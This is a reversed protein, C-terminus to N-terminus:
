AFVDRRTLPSASRHQQQQQPTYIAYTCHHKDVHHNKAPRVLCPRILDLGFDSATTFSQLPHSLIPYSPSLPLPLDFGHVSWPPSRSLDGPSETPISCVAHHPIKGDWGMGGARAISRQSYQVM